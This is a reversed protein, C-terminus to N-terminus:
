LKERFDELLRMLNSPGQNPLLDLLPIERRGGGLVVPISKLINLVQDQNLRGELLLPYLQEALPTHLHADRLYLHWKAVELYITEGIEAALSEIEETSISASSNTAM